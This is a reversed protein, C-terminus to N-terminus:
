ISLGGDLFKLVGQLIDRQMQIHIDPANKLTTWDVVKRLKLEVWVMQYIKFGAENM